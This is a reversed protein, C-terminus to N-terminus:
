NVPALSPNTDLARSMLLKLKARARALQAKVTGQKVGLVQAAENTSLGDLDRLQFAKRLPPSLQAVFQLLNRHLESWLCEDEPSPERGGLQESLCYEEDEGLREDLSLHMQRPRRRLQMRACNTVIATVWTSMQAQGKFQDLHKYASLLADQVADEADAANGLQRYARRYFLPLCRALVDQMEGVGKEPSPGELHQESGIYTETAQMNTNEEQCLFFCAARWDLKFPNAAKNEAIYIL